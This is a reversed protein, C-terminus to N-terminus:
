VNNLYCCVQLVPLKADPIQVRIARHLDQILEQQGMAFLGVIFKRGFNSAKNVASRLYLPSSVTRCLLSKLYSISEEDDFDLLQLADSINYMRKVDVLKASRDLSKVLLLPLLQTVLLDRGKLNNMWWKECLTCIIHQTEVGLADEESVSVNISVTSEEEKERHGQGQGYTSSLHFLVEHLLEAMGLAEDVVKIEVSKQQQQQEMVGDVYAHLINACAKLYLLSTSTSVSAVASPENKDQQNNTEDKDAVQDDDDEPPLYEEEEVIWALTGGLGRFIKKM